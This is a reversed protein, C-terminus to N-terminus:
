HMGNQHGPVNDGGDPEVFKQAEDQFSLIYWAVWLISTNPPVLYFEM